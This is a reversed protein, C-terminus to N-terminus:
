PERSRRRQERVHALLERLPASVGWLTKTEVKPEALTGSVQVVALEKRLGELLEAIAPVLPRDDKRGTMFTLDLQGDPELTGAGYLSVARGFLRIDEFFFRKGRVFYVIRAERFATEDGPALRLVNLLRVVFPLQYLNAGTIEAYGSAQVAQPDPGKGSLALTGRLRGGSVQHQLHFGDRLLREFDVDDVALSFGFRGGDAVGITASGELRGGYFEGEIDRAVIAPAADDKHLALHVNSVAKEAVDAQQVWARADFGLTDQTWRGEIDATGVVGSVRIGPVLTVEDLLASGKWAAEFTDRGTPRYQIRVQDLDLRGTASFRDLISRLPAPVARRFPGELRLGRAQLTLDAAPGLDGYAIRGALAFRASGNRATVDHLRVEDGEFELRGTVSELPYPFIDLAASIQRPTVWVHHKLREDPGFTKLLRAQVDVRGHPSLRRWAARMGPGLAGRLQENLLLDEATLAVDLAYDDPRQEISGQAQLVAGANHGRLSEIRCLGRSLRLRGTVQEALFPFDEHILRAGKLQIDLNYDLPEDAAAGRTISGQLDALGALHFLRFTRREREPLAAALDDDLPVDRGVVTIDVAPPGQKQYAVEGQIKVLAPGHRGYVEVIRTREPEIVVRGRTHTLRYPFEEYCVECDRLDLDAGVTPKAGRVPPRRIKVEIDATGVPAYQDYIGRHHPALALRLDDDFPVNTGSVTVEAEILPGPNRAWGTLRVRAQDHVGELGDILYEEPSFRVSGRLRRVPYPFHRYTIETGRCTIAGVARFDPEPGAKRSIHVAVDVPGRPSYIDYLSAMHPALGVLMGRVNELRVNDVAVDLEMDLADRDFGNVTGAFRLPAGDLLGQIRTLDLSKPTFTCRGTLNTFRHIQGRLDCPVPVGALQTFAALGHQFLDSALQPAHRVEWAFQVGTLEAVLQLGQTEDSDFLVKLNVSGTPEFRDWVRQAERPLSQYLDNTLAVNSAQGEFRLAGTRGDLLGSAVALHFVPSSVDTQFRFSRPDRESPLLLGSVRVEQEYVVEAAVKRKIRVAGEELTVVPRLPAPAPAEPRQRILAQFNWVKEDWFVLNILPRHVVIETVNLKLGVLAIPDIVLTVRDALLIPDRFPAPPMVRLGQLVLGDRLAFQARDIKVSTGLLDQLYHEAFAEVRVDDTLYWYVGVLAAALLVIAGLLFRRRYHRHVRALRRRENVPHDWHAPRERRPPATGDGPAHTM